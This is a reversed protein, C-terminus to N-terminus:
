VSSGILHARIAIPRLPSVQINNASSSTAFVSDLQARVIDAVLPPKEPPPPELQEARMFAPVYAHSDAGTCGALATCLVAVPRIRM